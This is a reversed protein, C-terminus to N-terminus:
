SEVMRWYQYAKLWEGINIHEWGEWTLVDWEFIGSSLLFMAQRILYNSCSWDWGPAWFDPDMLSSNAYFVKNPDEWGTYYNKMSGWFEADDAMQWEVWQKVMSTTGEPDVCMLPNNMCYTYPSSAPSDEPDLRMFRGVEPDYYRQCFYYLNNEDTGAKGKM